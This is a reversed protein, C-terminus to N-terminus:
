LEEKAIKPYKTRLRTIALAFDDHIDGGERYGLAELYYLANELAEILTPPNFTNNM